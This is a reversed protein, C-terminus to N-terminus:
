VRPLVLWILDCIVHRCTRCYRAHVRHMRRARPEGLHRIGETTGRSRSVGFSRDDCTWARALVVPLNVIVVYVRKRLRSMSEEEWGGGRAHVLDQKGALNCESHKEEKEQGQEIGTRSEITRDPIADDPAM